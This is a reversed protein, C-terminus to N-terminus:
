KERECMEDEEDTWESDVIFFGFFHIDVTGCSLM